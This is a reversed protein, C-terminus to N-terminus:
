DKGGINVVAAEHLPATGHMGGMHVPEDMKYVEKAHKIHKGALVNHTAAADLMPGWTQGPMKPNPTTKTKGEGQRVKQAAARLAARVRESLIEKAAPARDWKPKTKTKTTSAQLAHRMRDFVVARYCVHSAAPQAPTKTARGQILM